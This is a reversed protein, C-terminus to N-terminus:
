TFPLVASVARVLCLIQCSYLETHRLCGDENRLSRRGVCQTLCPEASGRLPLRFEVNQLDLPM